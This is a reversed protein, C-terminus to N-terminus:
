LHYLNGNLRWWVEVECNKLPHFYLTKKRLGKKKSEWSLERDYFEKVVLRETWFIQTLVIWLQFGLM